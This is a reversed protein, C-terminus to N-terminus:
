EFVIKKYKQYLYSVFLLILGLGIFSYIRYLTELFSLDYLFIKLTSIGFIIISTIRIIQNRQWIGIGILVISVLLWSSSLILQQMNVKSLYESSGVNLLLIEFEYYDRIEGTILSLVVVVIVVQFIKYIDNLWDYDKLWDYLNQHKRLLLLHATLISIIGLLTLTRYNFITSFLEIPVYSIGITVSLIVGLGLTLLGCIIIEILNKRYGYLIFVVSSVSWGISWSLLKLFRIQENSFGSELLQLKHFYDGIEVASFVLLIVSMTCNFIIRMRSSYNIEAKSFLYSGIGLLISLSLFALARSNIIPIFEKVDTYGYTDSITLLGFITLITLVIGTSWLLKVKSKTGLWLILLAEFAWLIIITFKEFQIYISITFLFIATILSLIQQSVFLQQRRKVLIFTGLYILSLIITTLGMWEHHLKDIM